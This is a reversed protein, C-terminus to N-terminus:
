EEANRWSFSCFFMCLISWSATLISLYPMEYTKSSGPQLSDTWGAQNVNHPMNVYGRRSGQGNLDTNGQQGSERLASSSRRNFPRVLRALTRPISRNSMSRSNSLTSNSSTVNSAVRPGAAAQVAQAEQAERRIEPGFIHMGIANLIDTETTNPGVDIVLHPQESPPSFGVRETGQTGQHPQRSNIAHAGSNGAPSSSM